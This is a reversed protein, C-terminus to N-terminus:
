KQDDLYKNVLFDAIKNHARPVSIYKINASLKEEYKKATLYLDRLTENKIKYVGMLQRAILESDHVFTIESPLDELESIKKLGEIAGYYEAVNNTQIGLYKGGKEIVKGNVEIVYGCAAPGPNGRSGGDCYVKMTKEM